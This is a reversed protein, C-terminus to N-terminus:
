ALYAEMIAHTHNHWWMEDYGDDYGQGLGKSKSVAIVSSEPYRNKVM